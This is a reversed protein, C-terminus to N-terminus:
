RLSCMNRPCPSAGYCKSGLQECEAMAAALGSIASTGLITRGSCHKLPYVQWTGGSGGSGGTVKEYMVSDYFALVGGNSIIPTWGTPPCSYCSGRSISNTSLAYYNLTHCDSKLSCADKCSQLTDFTGAITTRTSCYFSGKNTYVTTAPGAGKPREFVCSSGSTTLSAAGLTMQSADCLYISTKGQDCANDYVGWCAAGRQVCALKADKWNTFKLGAITKGSCHKLTHKTACTSTGTSCTTDFSWSVPM